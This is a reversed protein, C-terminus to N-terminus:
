QSNVNVNDGCHVYPIESCGVGTGARAAEEAGVEAAVADVGMDVGFGM